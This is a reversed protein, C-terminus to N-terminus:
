RQDCLEDIAIFGGRKLLSELDVAAVRAAIITTTTITIM